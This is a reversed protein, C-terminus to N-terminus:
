LWHKNALTWEVTRQMGAELKLSHEWGMEEMKQGDLAYRMDHGPRQQDVDVIEFEPLKGMVEAIMWVLEDNPVEREGVINYKEGAEGKELLFEIADCVNQVHIYYRSSAKTGSGHIQVKEGALIKRIVIPIFKESHQREGFINMCHTIIVPTKYTNHYAICLEEAGAKSASYPNSSKYRDWEKFAYGEPAPGFVEDTSFYVLKQCGYRRAYELINCTGVVNDMVFSMPDTISRDVHTGAAIHIIIDQPGIQNALHENIGAKLDHFVFRGKFGIEHLRNQNGSTDLRDLVTIEHGSLRQVMHHGVFGSGGTILIRSM